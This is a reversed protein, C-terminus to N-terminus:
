GSFNQKQLLVKLPWKHLDSFTVGKFYIKAEMKKGSDFEDAEM